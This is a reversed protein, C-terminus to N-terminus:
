CKVCLILYNLKFNFVRGPSHILEYYGSSIKPKIKKKNFSDPYYKHKQEYIRDQLSDAFSQFKTPTHLRQYPPINEYDIAYYKALNEFLKTQDEKFEEFTVYKRQKFPPASKIGRDISSTCKKDRNEAFHVDAVKEFKKMQFEKNFDSLKKKKFEDLEQEFKKDLEKRYEKLEFELDSFGLKNKNAWDTDDETLESYKKKLVENFKVDLEHRKRKEFEKIELEIENMKKKKIEKLELDIEVFKDLLHSREHKIQGVTFKLQNDFIKSTSMLRKDEAPNKKSALRENDGKLLKKNLIKIGNKSLALDREKTMFYQQTIRYNEEDVENSQNNCQKKANKRAIDAKEVRMGKYKKYLSVSSGLPRDDLSTTPIHKKIKFRYNRNIVPVNDNLQINNRNYYYTSYLGIYKLSM